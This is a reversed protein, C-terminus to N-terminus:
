FLVFKMAKEPCARICKGCRICDVSTLNSPMDIDMPCVKKCLGCNTCGRGKRLQLFSVKNFFGLFLGLPCLRCFFRYIKISFVVVLILITFKIFAAPAIRGLGQILGWIGAEITGAPCIYKCFGPSGIGQRNTLILPSMFVFGFLFVYKIFRLNKQFKMKSKQRYLLEQFFGFPCVWGCFFRGAIVAFTGLLGFIYLFGAMGNRLGTALFQQLMGVPCATVAFPCSHCNLVPICIKKLNGGYLAGTFFTKFNSNILLLSIIQVIKRIEIKIKSKQTKM